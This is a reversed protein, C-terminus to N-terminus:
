LPGKGHPRHDTGKNWVIRSISEDSFRSVIRESLQSLQKLTLNSAAITILRARYRYDVIKELESYQWPTGLEVGWDDMVLVQRRALRDALMGVDPESAEANIGAKLYDILDAVRSYRALIQHRKALTIIAAEIMHTKGNGTGGYVLLFPHGWPDDMLAKFAAIAKESGPWPELAEFTHALTFLNARAM